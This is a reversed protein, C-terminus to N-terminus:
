FHKEGVVTMLMKNLISKRVKLVFKVNKEEVIWRKININKNKKALM